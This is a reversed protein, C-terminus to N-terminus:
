GSHVRRVRGQKSNKVPSPTLSPEAKKLTAAIDAVRQRLPEPLEELKREGRNVAQAVAVIGTGTM